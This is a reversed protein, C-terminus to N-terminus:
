LGRADACTIPASCRKLVRHELQTLGEHTSGPASGLTSAQICRSKAAASFQGWQQELQSRARKQSNLCDQELGKGQDRPLLPARCTAEYDFRPVEDAALALYAGLFVASCPVPAHGAEPALMRIM